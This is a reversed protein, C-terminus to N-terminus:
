IYSVLNRNKLYLARNHDCIFVEGYRRNCKMEIDYFNSKVMVKIAEQNITRNADQDPEGLLEKWQADIKKVEKNMSFRFSPIKKLKNVDFDMNYPIIYGTEQDIMGQEEASPIPTCIVATNNILAELIAYSAAEEDSLQVLYDARRIFNQIDMTPDLNIFNDPLGKIKNNSFHLWSFEIKADVLKAVLTKIREDNKGKDSAGTRSASVFLLSDKEKKPLNHIVIGKESEGNWSKKSAESVNILIDRNQPIKLGCSKCGHCIQIVQEYKVNKPIEDNLRNLILTKCIVDKKSETLVTVKKALQGFREPAINRFMVAMDYTKIFHECFNNIFTSIGGVANINNSYILVNTKFPPEIIEVFHNSYGKLEHAWTQHPNEIDAYKELESIENKHTLIKVEKTEFDKKVEEVLEKMDASIGPIFYVVRKTKMLGKKFKKIKSDPLDDNYIYLYDSISGHKINKDRINGLRKTFDSDETSDKLENFRLNGIYSKKYVRCWVSPNTLREADNWIRFNLNGSSSKWSLDIVDYDGKIKKLIEKIYNEAIMDDSDIFTIYEGAAAEIGKNRASSCGKNAQNFYKIFGFDAFKPKLASGDDVVIIEVDDTKQKELELLLKETLEESNYYPIIISLIMM